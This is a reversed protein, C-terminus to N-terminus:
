SVGGCVTCRYKTSKNDGLRNKVRKLNGYLKDQVTHTCNCPMLKVQPNFKEVTKSIVVGLDSATVPTDTSTKKKDAMTKLNIDNLPRLLRRLWSTFITLM